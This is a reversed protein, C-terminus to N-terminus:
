MVEGLEYEYRGFQLSRDQGFGHVKGYDLCAILHERCVESSELLQLTCKLSAPDCYDIRKICQRPGQATMVSMTADRFGSAQAYATGDGNLIHLRDERVYVADVFKAKFQKIAKCGNPPTASKMGRALVQACDKLHARVNAARVFLGTEDRSFGIWKKALAEEITDDLKDTTEAHEAVVEDLGKADPMARLKAESAARAEIWPRVVDDHRPVGGCLPTTFTLALPYEIWM